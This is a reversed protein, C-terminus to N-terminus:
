GLYKYQTLDIGWQGDPIWVTDNPDEDPSFWYHVTKNGPPYVGTQPYQALVVGACLCLILLTLARKM